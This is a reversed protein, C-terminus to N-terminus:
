LRCFRSVALKKTAEHNQYRIERAGSQFYYIHHSDFFHRHDFELSGSRINRIKEDIDSELKDTIKKMEYFVEAYREIYRNDGNIIYNKMEDFVDWIHARVEDFRNATKLEILVYNFVLDAWAVYFKRNNKGKDSILSLLLSFSQKNLNQAESRRNPDNGIFSAYNNLSLAIEGTFLGPHIAEMEQNLKLAQYYLQETEGQFEQKLRLVNALNNCAIALDAAYRIHYEREQDKRIKLTERFLKEAEEFNNHLSLLIALNNSTWAVESLYKGPYKKELLRRSVLADRLLSEAEQERGEITSLLYGLNDKSWSVLPCYEDRNDKTLEQRISLGKRLYCEAEEIWEPFDSLLYGYYDCTTAYASEHMKESPTGVTEKVLRERIGLTRKLLSLAESRGSSTYSLQYGLSNIVNALQEDYFNKNTKELHPETALKEYIALSQRYYQIASSVKGHRRCVNAVVYNIKAAVEENQFSVYTLVSEAVLLKRLSTNVPENSDFFHDRYLLKIVKDGIEVPAKKDAFDLHITEKILPHMYFGNRFSLWGERVLKDLDNEDYDLWDRVEKKSLSIQPLVSFDWLIKRENEYRTQLNFLLRLQESAKAEINSHETRFSLEPFQFGHKKLKQVYEDLSEYKASRAMLEIAYSHLGALEVIQRAFEYQDREEKKKQLEEKEYYFYFLDICADFSLHDLKISLGFGPIEQFRSTILVSLHPWSAIEQLNKDTLPDQHIAVNSIVNDIVLLKKSTDNKLQQSIADWRLAPDEIDSHLALASLLSTKIDGQYDVWGIHNFLEGSLSYVVRALATKGIGGFGYLLVKKGECLLQVIERTKEERHLVIHEDAVAPNMYTLVIPLQQTPNGKKREAPKRKGMAADSIIDRFISACLDVTESSKIRMSLAIELADGLNYLVTEPFSSLFEYFQNTDVYGNIKKAIGSINNTGFYYAKFSPFTLDDIPNDNEGFNTIQYFLQKTFEAVRMGGGLVPYLISAFQSFSMKVKKENMKEGIM